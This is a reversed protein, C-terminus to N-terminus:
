NMRSPYNVVIEDPLPRSSSGSATPAKMEIPNQTAM